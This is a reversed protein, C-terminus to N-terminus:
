LNNLTLAKEQYEKSTKIKEVVFNPLLELFAEDFKDTYNFVLSASIQTPCEMGKPLPSASNIKEYSKGSSPSVKQIVNLMTPTGVLSEFDLTMADAESITKGLMGEIFKKLNGKSSLSLTFEESVFRPRETGDDSKKLETPLEFGFRILNREVENGQIVSKITGMHVVQVLRALYSGPEIPQYAQSIPANIM